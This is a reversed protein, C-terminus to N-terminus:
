LFTSLKLQKKQTFLYLGEDNQIFISSKKLFYGSIDDM